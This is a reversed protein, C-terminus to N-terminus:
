YTTYEKLEMKTSSLSDDIENKIRSRQDNLQYVMRSLLVFLVGFSKHHECSRIANEVDWLLENVNELQISLLGGKCEPPSLIDLLCDLQLQAQARKEDSHLRRKKIKLISIRDALEGPSIEITLTNAM